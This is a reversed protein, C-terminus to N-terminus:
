DVTREKPVPSNLLFDELEILKLDMPSFTSVPDSYPQEQAVENEANPSNRSILTLLKKIAM